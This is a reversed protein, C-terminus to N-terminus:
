RQRPKQSLKSVGGNAKSLISDIRALDAERDTPAAPLDRKLSSLKKILDDAESTLNQALQSSQKLRQKLAKSDQQARELAASSPM